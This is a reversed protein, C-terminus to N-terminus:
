PIYRLNYNSGQYSKLFIGSNLSIPAEPLLTHSETRPLPVYASQIISGLSLVSLFPCWHFLPSHLSVLSLTTVIAM